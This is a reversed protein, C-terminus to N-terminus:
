TEGQRRRVVQETRRVHRRAEAGARAADRARIADVIPAHFDVLEM